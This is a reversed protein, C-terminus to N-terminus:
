PLVRPGRRPTSGETIFKCRLKWLGSRFPRAVRSQVGFKGFQAARAATARARRQMRVSLEQMRSLLSPEQWLHSSSPRGASRAAAGGLAMPTGRRRAPEELESSFQLAYCATVLPCRRRRWFAAALSSPCRRRRRSRLSLCCPRPHSCERCSRCQRSRSCHSTAEQVGRSGKATREGQSVYGSM